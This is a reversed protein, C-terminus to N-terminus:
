PHHLRMLNQCVLSFTVLRLLRSHVFQPNIVSRNILTSPQPEQLTCGHSGNSVRHGKLSLDREDVSNVLCM